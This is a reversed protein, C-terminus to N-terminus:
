FPGMMFAAILTTVFGMAVGAGLAGCLRRVWWNDRRGAFWVFVSAAVPVVAVLVSFVGLTPEADDRIGLFASQAVWLWYAGTQIVVLLYLAGTVALLAWWWFEEAVRRV